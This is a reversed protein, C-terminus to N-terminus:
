PGGHIPPPEGMASTLDARHEELVQGKHQQFGFWVILGSIVVAAVGMIPGWKQYIHINGYFEPRPWALNVVMAAGYLIALVNTVVAFGGLSFLGQNATELNGPWGNLRRQLL